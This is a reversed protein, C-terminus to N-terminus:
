AVCDTQQRQQSLPEFHNLGLADLPNFGPNGFVEDLLQGAIAEGGSFDEITQRVM